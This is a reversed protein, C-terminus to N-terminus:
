HMYVTLVKHMREVNQLNDDVRTIPNYHQCIRLGYRELKRLAFKNRSPLISFKATNQM